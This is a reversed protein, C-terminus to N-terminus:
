QLDISSSSQGSRETVHDLKGQANYHYTREAKRGDPTDLYSGMLVRSSDDAYLYVTSPTGDSYQKGTLRQKADWTYTTTIGRADTRSGVTGDSNYTYTTTGTEPNTASILHSDADYLFSRIRPTDGKAGYQRITTLHGFDDYVYDTELTPQNQADPEFVKTLRGHADYFHLSTDLGKEQQRIRGSAKMEAWALPNDTRRQITVTQGSKVEAQATASAQSHIPTNTIFLLAAIALLQKRSYRNEISPFLVCLGCFPM